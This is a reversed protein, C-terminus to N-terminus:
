PSVDCLKVALRLDISASQQVTVDIEPRGSLELEATLVDTDFALSASDDARQDEPRGLGTGLPDLLGAAQGSVAAFDLHVHTSTEGTSPRVQRRAPFLPCTRRDPAAM